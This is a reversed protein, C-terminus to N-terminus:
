HYFPKKPEIADVVYKQFAEELLKPAIFFMRSTDNVQYLEKFSALSIFDFQLTVNKKLKELCDYKRNMYRTKIDTDVVYYTKINPNQLSFSIADNLWVTEKEENKLQTTDLCINM